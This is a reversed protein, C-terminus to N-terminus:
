RKEQITHEIARAFARLSAESDPELWLIHREAIADIEADTLRATDQAERNALAARMQDTTYLAQGHPNRYEGAPYAPAPLERDEGETAQPQPAPRPAYWAMGVNHIFAPLATVAIFDDSGWPERAGDHDIIEGPNFVNLADIVGDLTPPEQAVAAAPAETLPTATQTSVFVAFVKRMDEKDREVNDGAPYPKGYWVQLAQLLIADTPERSENSM